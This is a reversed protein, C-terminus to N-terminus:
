AVDKLYVTTKEKRFGLLECMRASPEKIGAFVASVFSSSFNNEDAWDAASKSTAIADRLAKRVDDAGYIKTM